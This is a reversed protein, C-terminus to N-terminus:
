AVKRHRTLPMPVLAARTPKAVALPSTYGGVRLEWGPSEHGCSTCLLSIRGHDFHLLADHGKLGCITRHVGTVVRDIFGTVTGTRGQTRRRELPRGGAGDQKVCLALTAAGKSILLLAVPPPTGNLDLRVLSKLPRIVNM